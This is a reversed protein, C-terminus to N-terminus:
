SASLLLFRFITRHDRTTTAQKTRGQAGEEGDSTKPWRKQSRWELLSVDMKKRKKKQQQQKELRTFSWQVKKEM